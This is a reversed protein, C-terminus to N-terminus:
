FESKFNFEYFRGQGADYIYTKMTDKQIYISSLNVLNPLGRNTLSDYAGQPNAVRYTPPNGLLNSAVPTYQWVLVENTTKDVGMLFDNTVSLSIDKLGYNVLSYDSVSSLELLKEPSTQGIFFDADCGIGYNDPSCAQTVSAIPNNDFVAVRAYLHISPSTGNDSFNENSVIYLRNGISHIETPNAFHRRLFAGNDIVMGAVFDYSLESNLYKEKFSDRTVYDQQGLVGSFRCASTKWASNTCLFQDGLVDRVMVVRHNGTDAIYLNGDLYMLGSPNTLSAIGDVTMDYVTNDILSKKGVVKLPSCEVPTTEGLLNRFNYCGHTTLYPYILVRDNGSDSVVLNSGAIALGRPKTMCQSQPLPNGSEGCAYKTDFSRQGLVAIPTLPYVNMIKACIAYLDPEGALGKCSDYLQSTYIMVRNNDTDTCYVLGGSFSAVCQGTPAGIFTAGPSLATRSVTDDLFPTSGYVNLYSPWFRSASPVEIIGVDDPIDITFYSGESWRNDIKGYIYYTYKTAPEIYNNDVYSNVAMSNIPTFGTGNVHYKYASSYSATPDPIPFAIGDGAIKYIYIQFNQAIYTAPTTWTLEVKGDTNIDAKFALMKQPVPTINVSGNPNGPVFLTDKDETSKSSLCSSIAIMTFILFLNKKM